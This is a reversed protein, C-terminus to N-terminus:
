LVVVHLVERELEDPRQPLLEGAPRREAAHDLGVPLVGVGVQAVEHRPRLPRQLDRELDPQHLAGVPVVLRHHGLGLAPRHRHELLLGLGVGVVLAAGAVQDVAGPRHPGGEGAVVEAAQGVAQGGGPGGAQRPNSAGTTIPPFGTRVRSSITETSGPENSRTTHRLPRAPLASTEAATAAASAAPGSHRPRPKAPRAATSNLAAASSRARLASSAASIPKSAPLGILSASASTASAM